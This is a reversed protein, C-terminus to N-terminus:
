KNPRVKYIDNVEIKLSSGNKTAETIINSALKESDEM